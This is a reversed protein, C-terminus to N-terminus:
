SGHSRQIAPAGCSRVRGQAASTCSPPPGHREARGSCLGQKGAVREAGRHRAPRAGATEGGIPLLPHDFPIQRRLFRLSHARVILSGAAGMGVMVASTYNVGPLEAVRVIPLELAFQEQLTSKLMSGAFQLQLEAEPSMIDPNTMENILWTEIAIVWGDNSMRVVSSNVEVGCDPVGWGAMSRTLISLTVALFFVIRHGPM